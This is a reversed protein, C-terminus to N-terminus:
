YGSGTVRDGRPFYAAVRIPVDVVVGCRAAFSGEHVVVTANAADVTAVPMGDADLWAVTTATLQKVAFEASAPASTPDSTVVLKGGARRRTATGSSGSSQAGQRLM